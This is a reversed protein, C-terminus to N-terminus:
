QSLDTCRSPTAARRVSGDCTASNGDHGLHGARGRGKSGLLGVVHCASPRQSHLSRRAAAPRSSARRSPAAGPRSGLPRGPRLRRRHGADQWGARRWTWRRGGRRGPARRRQAPCARNLVVLRLRERRDCAPDRRSPGAGAGGPGAGARAPGAADTAARSSRRAFVAQAVGEDRAQDLQANTQDLQWNKRRLRINSWSVMGIFLSVLLLASVAAGAWAPHRRAAKWSREVWPAPRAAIPEGRLFRALDDAVGQATAYRDRPEKAMMKRVITEFDHPVSPNLKRLSVPEEQAIRRLVESRDEGDFAPHLTLLEYLTAGLSYVDCRGDLAAHGGVAQEPSMYRLTGVVLGTVTLSANGQIQAVGFDTIWFQEQDDILLNAPKIDRHLIGHQHAHELAEAAEIGLRAVTLIYTHDRPSCGTLAPACSSALVSPQRTGMAEVKAAPRIQERAFQTTPAAVERLRVHRIVQALSLGDIFEMALYPTGDAEGVAHVPVIHNHHLRGAAQAELQFRQRQRSDLAAALSLVKLAVRRRLSIQEAEYVIGMGGCGVERVIRFDGLVRRENPALSAGPSVSVTSGSHDEGIRPPDTQSEDNPHSSESTPTPTVPVPGPGPSNWERTCWADVDDALRDRLRTVLLGARLRSELEPHDALLRLPDPSRGAQYEALFADLLNAAELDLMEDLSTGNEDHTSNGAGNM